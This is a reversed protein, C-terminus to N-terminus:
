SGNLRNCSEKTPKRESIYESFNNSNNEFGLVNSDLLDTSKNELEPNKINITQQYSDLHLPGM